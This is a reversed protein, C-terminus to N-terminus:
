HLVTTREPCDAFYDPDVRIEKGKNDRVFQLIDQETANEANRMGFQGAIVYAADPTATLVSKAGVERVVIEGKIQGILRATAM